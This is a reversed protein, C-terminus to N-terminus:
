STVAGQLALGAGELGVSILAPRLEEGAWLEAWVMSLLAEHVVTEM